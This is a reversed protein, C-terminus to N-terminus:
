AYNLVGKLVWVEGNAVRSVVREVVVGGPQVVAVGDKGVEWWVKGGGLTEVKEGEKWPSVPVVHAEAFRRLNRHARDEGSKGEYAETGMAAYDRPDEWPKHPLASIASNLPALVTTNSSSADLRTSISSIDRTFGAFINITRQTGLIDSLIVSSNPSPAPLADPASPPLQVGPTTEMIPRQDPQQVQQRSPTNSHSHSSFPPLLRAQTSAALVLASLLLIRTPTLRPM